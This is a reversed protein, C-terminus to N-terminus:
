DESFTLLVNNDEINLDYTYQGVKLVEEGVYDFPQLSFEGSLTIIKIYGYKYAIDFAKYESYKGSPLTEFSNGKGGSTVFVSQFVINSSNAIRIQIDGSLDSEKSCGLSIFSMTSIIIIWNKM